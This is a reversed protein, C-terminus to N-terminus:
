VQLVRKIMTLPVPTDDHMAAVQMPVEMVWEDSFEQNMLYVALPNHWTMLCSKNTILKHVVGYRIAGEAFLVVVGTGVKIAMGEHNLVEPVSPVM